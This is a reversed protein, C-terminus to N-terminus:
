STEILDLTTIWKRIYKCPTPHEICHRNELGLTAFNGHGCHSLGTPDFLQLLMFIFIFCKNINKGKKKSYKEAIFVQCM